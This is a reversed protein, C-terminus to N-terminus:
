SRRASFDSVSATLGLGQQGFVGNKMGFNFDFGPFAPVSTSKSSATNNLALSQQVIDRQASLTVSPAYVTAGTLTLDGGTATLVASKAALIMGGSAQETHCTPEPTERGYTPM